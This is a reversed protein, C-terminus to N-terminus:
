GWFQPTHRSRWLGNCWQGQQQQQTNDKNPRECLCLCDTFGCVAKPSQVRCQKLSESIVEGNHLCRLVAKSSVLTACPELHEEWRFLSNPACYHSNLTFDLRSKVSNLVLFICLKMSHLDNICVGGKPFYCTRNLKLLTVSEHLTYSLFCYMAELWWAKSMNEIVKFM